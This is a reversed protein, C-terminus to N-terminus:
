SCCPDASVPVNTTDKGFVFYGTMFGGVTCVILTMDYTMVVLMLLYALLIRIGHIVADGLHTWKDVNVSAPKVYVLVQQARSLTTSKTARSQLLTVRKFHEVAEEGGQAHTRTKGMECEDGLEPDYFNLTESSRITHMAQELALDLRRKALMKSHQLQYSEATMLVQSVVALLFVLLCALVARPLSTLGWSEFWLASCDDMPDRGSWKFGNMGMVSGPGICFTSRM